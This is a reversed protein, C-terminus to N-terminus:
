GANRSASTAKSFDDAQRGGCPEPALLGPRQHELTARRARQGVYRGEDGARVRIGRPASAGQQSPKVELRKQGDLHAVGFERARSEGGGQFVGTRAVARADVRAHRRRFLLQRRQAFAPWPRQHRAPVEM